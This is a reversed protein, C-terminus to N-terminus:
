LELYLSVNWHVSNQSSILIDIKFLNSVRFHVFIQSGIDFFYEEAATNSKSCPLEAVEARRTVLYLDVSVGGSGM